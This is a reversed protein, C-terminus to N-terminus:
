KKRKAEKKPKRRKRAAKAPTIVRSEIIPEQVGTLMEPGMAEPKVEEVRVDSFDDRRREQRGLSAVTGAAALALALWFFEAAISSLVIVNLLIAGYAFLLARSGQRAYAGVGMAAIVVLGAIIAVEMLFIKGGFLFINDIMALFLVLLLLIHLVFGGIRARM